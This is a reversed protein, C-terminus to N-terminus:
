NKIHTTAFYSPTLRFILKSDFDLYKKDEKNETKGDKRVKREMGGRERGGEGM